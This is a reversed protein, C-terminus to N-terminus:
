FIEEIDETSLTIPDGLQALKMISKVRRLQGGYDYCWGWRDLWTQENLFAIAEERTYNRRNWPWGHRYQMRVAIVKENQEARHAEIRAIVASCAEIVKDAQMVITAM